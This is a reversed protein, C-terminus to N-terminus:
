VRMSASFSMKPPQGIRSVFDAHDPMKAATDAIVEEIDRLYGLAQEDPILEVMPDAKAPLGQGILVQVWSEERFLEAKGHMFFRATSTFLALRKALSDPVSMAGLHRWFDSDQRETVKYHAIIFDRVDTYEFDTQRNYEAV